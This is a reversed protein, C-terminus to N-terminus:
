KHPHKMNRLAGKLANLIEKPLGLQHIELIAKNKTLIENIEGLKTLDSTKDQSKYSHYWSEVLKKLQYKLASIVHAPQKETQTSM